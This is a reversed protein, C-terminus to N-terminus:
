KNPAQYKSAIGSATTMAANMQEISLLELSSISTFAGSGITVMEVVAIQDATGELMCVFEGTSVSYHISHTSIGIADFLVRAAAGRDSPSAVMGKFAAGSYQARTLYLSM